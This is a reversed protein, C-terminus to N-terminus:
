IATLIDIVQICEENEFKFTYTRSDTPNTTNIAEYKEYNKFVDEVTLYNDAYNVVCPISGDLTIQMYKDSLKWVNSIQAQAELYYNNSNLKKLKYSAYESESYLDYEGKNASEKIVYNDGNLNYIGNILASDLEAKSVTYQTYVVGKLVYKNNEQKVETVYLCDIGDFEKKIVGYNKDEEAIINSSNQIAEINVGDNQMNSNNDEIINNYYRMGVIFFLLLMIIIICIVTGLSIKITKKEEM